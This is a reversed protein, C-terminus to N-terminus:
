TLYRLYGIFQHRSSRSRVALRKLIKEFDPSQDSARGTVM